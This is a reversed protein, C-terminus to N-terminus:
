YAMESLLEDTKGEVNVIFVDILLMIFSVFSAALELVMPVVLVLGSM